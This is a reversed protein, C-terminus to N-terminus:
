KNEDEKTSSHIIITIPCKLVIILKIDIYYQGKIENSLLNMMEQIRISINEGIFRKNKWNICLACVTKLNPYLCPSMHGPRMAPSPIQLAPIYIDKKILISSFSGNEFKMFDSSSNSHFCQTRMCLEYCYNLLLIFEYYRLINKFNIKDLSIVFHVKYVYM